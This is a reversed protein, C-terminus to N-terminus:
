PRDESLIAFLYHDQWHGAIKLYRRAVGEQTFGNKELVRISAVNQPLCAAELRHLWMQRFVFPILLGVAETMYGKGAHRVGMWYGLSASQTVGRRINSLTLGGILADTDREFLFFATGTEDRLDKQHQRVRRRFAARTLEDSGWTPEWPVLFARSESRIRAWAPYDSVAPMRLLLRGGEIVPGFDLPSVSRLFAM